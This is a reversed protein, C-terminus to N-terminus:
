DLEEQLLNNRGCVGCSQLKVTTVWSETYCSCKCNRKNTMYSQYVCRSSVIHYNEAKPQFGCSFMCLCSIHCLTMLYILYILWNDTNHVLCLFHHSSKLRRKKWIRVRWSINKDLFLSCFGNKNLPGRGEEHIVWITKVVGHDNTTWWPSCVITGFGWVLVQCVKWWSCWMDDTQSCSSWKAELTFRNATFM